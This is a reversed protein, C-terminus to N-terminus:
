GARGQCYAQTVPHEPRTFIQETPGSEVVCGAGEQTWCVVVRDAIRRAQALNHTVMIITMNNKLELILQEIRETSIPDLASCPEDLLLVQPQLVLARAICLRQQQGGSLSLARANLRHSVESWLGAQELAFQIRAQRESGRRVGHDQLPFDLNEAISLPFPNPQQFVMGVSQRLADLSYGGALINEGNIEIHGEVRCGPIHDTMRNVSALLSSKGCGSPGVLAVVEGPNAALWANRIGAHHQYYVSLNEIKVQGPMPADATNGTFRSAMVSSTTRGSQMRALARQVPQTVTQNVFTQLTM